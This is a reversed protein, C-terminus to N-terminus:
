KSKQLSKTFLLIDLWEDFDLTQISEVSDVVSAVIMKNVVSLKKMHTNEKSKNSKTASSTVKM